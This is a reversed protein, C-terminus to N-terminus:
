GTWCCRCRARRRPQLPLHGAPRPGANISDCWKTWGTTAACPLIPGFIERQMLECDAPADLVIHPAIKRTAADHSAPGPLLPLLTAGRSRAEDLAQAAPRVSRADIISTYDPSALSPARRCSAKALEVFAASARARCGPM